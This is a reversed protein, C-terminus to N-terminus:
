PSVVIYLAASLMYFVHRFFPECVTSWILDTAEKLSYGKVAPSGESQLYDCEAISKESLTVASSKEDAYL